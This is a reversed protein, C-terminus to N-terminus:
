GPARQMFRTVQREYIPDCMYSGCTLVFGQWGRISVSVGIM